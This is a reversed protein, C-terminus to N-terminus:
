ARIERAILVGRQAGGLKRGGSCTGNFSYEASLNDTGARVQYTIASTTAPADRYEILIVKPVGGTRIVTASVANSVADRFLAGTVEDDPDSDVSGTFTVLVKSDSYKPTISVTLLQDGETIQPITDDFDIQGSLKVYANSEAYVAQVVSGSPHLNGVTISRLEAADVDWVLLMSGAKAVTVATQGNIMDAAAKAATVADDALKASTVAASALKNTTVSGDALSLQASLDVALKDASISGDALERSTIAGAKIRLLLEGVIQNVKATTLLENDDLVRGPTLNIEGSAM